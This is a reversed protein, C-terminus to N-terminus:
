WDEGILSGKLTLFLLAESRAWELCKSKTDPGYVKQPLHQDLRPMTDVVIHEIKGAADKIEVVEWFLGVRAVSYGQKREM